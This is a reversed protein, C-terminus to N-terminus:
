GGVEFDVKGGSQNTASVTTDGIFTGDAHAGIGVGGCALSGNDTINSVDKVEEFITLDTPTSDTMDQFRVPKLGMQAPITDLCQRKGGVTSEIEISKGAPCSINLSGEYLDAIVKVEVKYTYDCGNVKVDTTLGSGTSCESYSPTVTLEASAGPEMTASYTSKNCFFISGANGNPASIKFAHPELSTEGDITAKLLFSSKHEEGVFTTELATFEPAAQAAPAITASAALVALLAVLLSKPSPAM